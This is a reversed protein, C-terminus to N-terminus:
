AVREGGVPRGAEVEDLFAEIESVFTELRWRSGHACRQRIVLRSGSILEHDRLACPLFDDWEGIMVLTPATIKPIRDTLDPRAAIAGAAGIHGEPTMLKIRELDEELTYPSEDLHADNAKKWEWERMLTAELGNNQVAAKLLSIGTVLRQEWHQAADPEEPMVALMPANGCTSDIVMVSACMEPYDVAFQATVMGGMSVGGIHAPEVGIAKLLAAVDAAFIPMSYASPDEPVTTRHHGRVDYLVLPRKEALSLLEPKWQQSPGAFGHTLVLPTGEAPGLREYWIDIGNAHVTPM